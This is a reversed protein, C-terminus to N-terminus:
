NIQLYRRVANRFNLEEIEKIMNEDFLKKKKKGVM